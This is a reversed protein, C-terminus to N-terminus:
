SRGRARKAKETAIHVGLAKQREADTGDHWANFDEPKELTAMARRRRRETQFREKPDDAEDLNRGTACVFNKANFTTVPYKDPPLEKGEAELRERTAEKKSIEKAYSDIGVVLNDLSVTRVMQLLEPQSPAPLETTFTSEWYAKVAAANEEDQKVKALLSSASLRTNM